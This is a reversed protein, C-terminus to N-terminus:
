PIYKTYVVNICQIHRTYINYSSPIYVPYTKFIGHIYITYVTYICLIICTYEGGPPQHQPPPCSGMGGVGGAIVDGPRTMVTVYSQNQGVGACVKSEQEQGHPHAPRTQFQLSCPLAPGSVCSDLCVFRDEEVQSMGPCTESPNGTVLVVIGVALLLYAPQCRSYFTM